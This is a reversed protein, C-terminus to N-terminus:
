LPGRSHVAPELINILKKQLNKLNIYFFYPKIINSKYGEIRNTYYVGLLLLFVIIWYDILYRSIIKLYLVIYEALLESMKPYIM